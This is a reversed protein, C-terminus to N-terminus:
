AAAAKRAPKRRAPLNTPELFRALDEEIMHLIFRGRETLFQGTRTQDNYGTTPNKTERHELLGERLLPRIGSIWHSIDHPSDFPKGFERSELSKLIAVQNGTLTLTWQIM